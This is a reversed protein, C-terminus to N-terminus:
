WISFVSFIRRLNPKCFICVFKTEFYCDEAPQKKPSKMAKGKPMAKAAGKAKKQSACKKAQAKAAVKAKAAGKAKAATMKPTAKPTKKTSDGKEQLM